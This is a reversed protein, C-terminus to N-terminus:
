MFFEIIKRGKIKLLCSKSTEKNVSAIKANKEKEKKDDAMYM